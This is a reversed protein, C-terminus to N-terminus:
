RKVIKYVSNAKDDSIFLSGERDFAIDVPRGTANNGDLFGTLFDSMIRTGKTAIRVVKYGTKTSRDWSGHFSVLLDGQWDYPLQPSDIFTIGLPASHAPFNFYPELTSDECFQSRTKSFTTDTINNGYCYPWGYNGNERLINIEDPPINDGLNDRGMETVYIQGSKNLALFVANRLGSSYVKPSNGDSDTTIVSALMSNKEACVNCTSGISIYLKGSNDFLLSRTTHLGGKPLDLIKKDLTVSQHAEDYLYRTVKTEEAVFLKGERFALGHPNKLNKLLVISRDAKGNHDIDPLAVVKGEEKQSVILTGGPAFELDRAGAVDKAFVGIKYDNPLAVSFPLNDGTLSKEQARTTTKTPSPQIKNKQVAPFFSFFTLAILLLLLVILFGIIKKM